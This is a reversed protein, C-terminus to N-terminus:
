SCNGNVDCTITVKDNVTQVVSGNSYRKMTIEGIAKNGSTYATRNSYQWDDAYYTLSTVASTATASVGVNVTFKGTVSFKWQRVNSANYYTHSKTHGVEITSRTLPIEEEEITVVIYSGDEFYIIEDSTTEASAFITFMSLAFVMALVVSLAKTCVKRM